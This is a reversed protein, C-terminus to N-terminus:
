REVDQDDELSAKLLDLLFEDIGGTQGAAQESMLIKRVIEEKGKSYLKEHFMKAVPSSQRGLFTLWATGLLEADNAASSKGMSIYQIPADKNQATECEHEVIAIFRACKIEQKYHKGDITCEVTIMTNADQTLDDSEHYITEGRGREQKM